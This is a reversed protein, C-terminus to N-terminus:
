LSNAGLRMNFELGALAGSVGSFAVLLPALSSSLSTVKKDALVFAGRVGVVLLSLPTAPDGKLRRRIEEGLGGLGFLTGGCM